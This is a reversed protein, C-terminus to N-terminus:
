RLYIEPVDYELDLIELEVYVFPGDDIVWVGEGATPVRIGSMGRDERTVAQWPRLAPAPAEDRYRLGEFLTVCGAEDVHVVGSVTEGNISLTARARSADIADWAISRSLAAFPFWVTEQLYRLAAGQDITPGNADVVSFLALAKMRMAGRGDELADFGRVFVGPPISASVRWIFGPPDITYYQDARFSMWPSEPSQRIRGRQRLRVSAPIPKGVVDAHRLWRAIPEPLTALDADTVVHAESRGAALLDGIRRDVARDFRENATWIAFAGLGVAVAFGALLLKWM